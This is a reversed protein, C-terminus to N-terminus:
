LTQVVKLDINVKGALKKDFYIDYWNTVAGKQIVELLPVFGNGILKGKEEKLGEWVNIEISNETGKVPHTITDNWTPTKGQHHAVGTRYALGGIILEVHPSMKSILDVDHVLQAGIPRVILQTKGPVFSPVQPILTPQATAQINAYM